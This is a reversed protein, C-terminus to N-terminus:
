HSSAPAPSAAPPDQGHALRQRTREVVPQVRRLAPALTGNLPVHEISATLLANTPALQPSSANLLDEPLASPVPSARTSAPPDQPAAPPSPITATSGSPLAGPSAARSHLSM